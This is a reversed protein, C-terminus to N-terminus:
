GGEFVEENVSLLRFSGDPRQRLRSIKATGLAINRAEADGLLRAIVWAGTHFHTVVLVTQGSGGFRGALKDAAGVAM